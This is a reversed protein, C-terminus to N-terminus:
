KQMQRKTICRCFNMFKEFLYPNPLNKKIKVVFFVFFACLVCFHCSRKQGLFEHEDKRWFM